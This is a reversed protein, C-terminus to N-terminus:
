TNIQIFNKFLFYYMIIVLSQKVSEIFPYISYLASKWRKMIM